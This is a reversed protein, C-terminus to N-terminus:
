FYNLVHRRSKAITESRDNIVPLSFTIFVIFRLQSRPLYRWKKKMIKLSSRLAKLVARSWSWSSYRSDPLPSSVGGDVSVRSFVGAIGCCLRRGQYLRCMSFKHRLTTCPRAMCFAEASHARNRLEHQALSAKSIRDLFLPDAIINGQVPWCEDDLTNTIM